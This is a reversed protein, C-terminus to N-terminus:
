SRRKRRSSRGAAQGTHHAVDQVSVRYYNAARTIALGPRTGERIMRRAFMVAAFLTKDPIYDM